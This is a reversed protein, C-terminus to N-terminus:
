GSGLLRCTTGPPDGQSRTLPTNMATRHVHGLVVSLRHLLLLLNVMAAAIWEMLQLLGLSVAATCLLLWVHM